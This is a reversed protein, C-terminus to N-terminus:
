DIPCHCTSVCAWTWVHCGCVRRVKGKSAVEEEVEEEQQQSPRENEKDAEAEAEVKPEEAAAPAAAAPAEEGLVRAKLSALASALWASHEKHEEELQGKATRTTELLLDVV